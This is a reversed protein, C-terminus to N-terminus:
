VWVSHIEEVIAEKEESGAIVPLLSGGWSSGLQEGDGQGVYYNRGPWTGNKKVCTSIGATGTHDSLRVTEILGFSVSWQASNDSARIHITANRPQVWGVGVLSKFKFPVEVGRDPILSERGGEVNM